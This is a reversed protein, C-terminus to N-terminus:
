FSVVFQAVEPGLNELLGAPWFDPGGGSVAAAQAVAKHIHTSVSCLQFNRTDSGYKYFSWFYSSDGGRASGSLPGCHGSIFPVYLSCQM